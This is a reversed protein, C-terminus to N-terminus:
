AVLGHIGQRHQGTTESGSGHDTGAQHGAEGGIVCGVLRLRRCLRFRSGVIGGKDGGSGGDRHREDHHGDDRGGGPRSPGDDGGPDNM